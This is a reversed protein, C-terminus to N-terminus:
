VPLELVEILRQVGEPQALLRRDTAEPAPEPRRDRLPRRRSPSGPWPLRFESPLPGRRPAALPCCTPLLWAALLGTIVLTIGACSSAGLALWGARGVLRLRYAPQRSLWSSSVFRRISCARPRPRPGPGPRPSVSERLDRTLVAFSHSRAPSLQVSHQGNEACRALEAAPERHYDAPAGACQRGLLIRIQACPEPPRRQLSAFRGTSRAPHPRRSCEVRLDNRTHEPDQGAVSMSHTTM